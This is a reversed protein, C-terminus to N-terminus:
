TIGREAPHLERKENETRGMNERQKRRTEKDRVRSALKNKATWYPNGSMEMKVFPRNKYIKLTIDSLLLVM